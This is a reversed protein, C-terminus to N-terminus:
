ERVQQLPRLKREGGHTGKLHAMLIGEITEANASFEKVKKMFYNYAIVAPIAVLLGIATAVLAESIGAMVATASGSGGGAVALDHFAKIIGLVTGFLGIFPANNGMTGLIMLYREFRMREVIKRSALMEEVVQDGQNFHALAVKAIRAEAGKTMDALAGAGNLDDRSLRETFASLFREIPTRNRWFYLLREIIVTVSLISLFILLWLVWESGILTFGRLLEAVTGSEPLPAVVGLPTPLAAPAAATTTVPDM